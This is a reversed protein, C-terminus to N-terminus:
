VAVAICAHVLERGGALQQYRPPLGAAVGPLEIDRVIDCRVFVAPNVDGIPLVVSILFEIPVAFVFRLPVIQVPRTTKIATAALRWGKENAFQPRAHADIQMRGIEPRSKRDDIRLSPQNRAQAAPVSWPKLYSFEDGRM